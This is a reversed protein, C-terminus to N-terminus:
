HKLAGPTLCREILLSFYVSTPVSLVINLEKNYRLAHENMYLGSHFAFKIWNPISYSKNRDLLSIRDIYM